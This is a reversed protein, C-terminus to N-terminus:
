QLETVEAGFVKRRWAEAADKTPVCRRCLYVHGYGRHWSCHIVPLDLDDVGALQTAAPSPLPYPTKAKWAWEWTFDERCIECMQKLGSPWLRKVPYRDQFASSNRM